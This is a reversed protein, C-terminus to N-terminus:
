SVFIFISCPHRNSFIWKKALISAFEPNPLSQSVTFAYEYCKLHIYKAVFFKLNWACSWFHWKLFQWNLVKSGTCPIQFIKHGFVKVQLTIFIDNSSKTWLTDWFKHWNQAFLHNEWFFMWAANGNKNRLTRRDHQCWKLAFNPIYKAWGDKLMKSHHSRVELSIKPLAL